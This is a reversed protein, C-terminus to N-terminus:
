FLQAETMINEARGLRIDLIEALKEASLTKLQAFTHINAAQLRGNFVAGIGKVQTLDDPVATASETRAKDLFSPVEVARSPLPINRLVAPEEGSALEMKLERVRRDTAALKDLLTLAGDEASTSKQWYWFLLGALGGILLGIMFNFTYKQKM